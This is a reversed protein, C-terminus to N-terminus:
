LHFLLGASFKAKPVLQIGNVRTYLPLEVYTFGVLKTGLKASFEPHSM